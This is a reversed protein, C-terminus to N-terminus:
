CYFRFYFKKVFIQKVFEDEFEVFLVTEKLGCYSKALDYLWLDESYFNKEEGFMMFIEYKSKGLLIKFNRKPKKM